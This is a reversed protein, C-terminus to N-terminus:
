AFWAGYMILVIDLSLDGGVKGLTAM